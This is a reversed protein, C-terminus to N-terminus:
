LKIEEFDQISQPKGTQILLTRKRFFRLLGADGMRSGNLGSKKFANKEADYIKNTLSGDNISIAGAEIEFSIKNIADTNSSFLSASLGFESDNALEIAEEITSFSMVPILPGFTEESMVKMGHNVNSLVTPRCWLGGNHNEIKGGCHVVAEKNKADNIQEQIATAQKEFIIPGIQGKSKEGTNLTAEKAKKILLELFRSYINKHVYIRELSQCAQGTAGVASRLVADTAIEIDADELVIAPDKGGLELFAPILRKACALAIHEGTAVSGTFCIADSTNVVEKGVEAGGRVLKLVADLEPVEKISKELPDLYRPTVESPKLLVASGAMLAPIADILSLTIPFNWPGIVGVLDFSIRKEVITVNPDFVSPKEDIDKMILPAKYCWGDIMGLIGKVEYKSIYNRGTDESLAQVIEEEYKEISKKWKQLIQARYTVGANQWSKKNSRLEKSKDQIEVISDTKLNYDYIGTYPNRIKMMKYM